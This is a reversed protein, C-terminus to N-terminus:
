MLRARSAIDLLSANPAKPVLGAEPYMRFKRNPGAEPYMRFKKNINTTKIALVIHWAGTETM